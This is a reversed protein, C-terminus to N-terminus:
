DFLSTRRIPTEGYEFRAAKAKTYANEGKGYPFDPVDCGNIYVLSRFGSDGDYYGCCECDWAGDMEKFYVKGCKFCENIAIDKFTEAKEGLYVWIKLTTDWENVHAKAVLYFTLDPKGVFVNKGTDLAIQEIKHYDREDMVGKIELFADQDPLYFDPLYKTGDSLVFGEPEYIYKLGLEDMFVMWRAEARSRCKYGNYETEIAKITM